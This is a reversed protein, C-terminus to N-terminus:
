LKSRDVKKKRKSTSKRKKAAKKAAKKSQAKGKSDQYLGTYQNYKHKKQNNAQAEMPNTLAAYDVPNNAAPCGHKACSSLVVSLLIAIIVSCFTYKKTKM